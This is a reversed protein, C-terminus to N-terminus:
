KENYIKNLALDLVDSLITKSEADMEDFHRGVLGYYISRIENFEARNRSIVAEQIANFPSYLFTRTEHSDLTEASAMELVGEDEDDQSLGKNPMTNDISDDFKYDDVTIEENVYCLPSNTITRSIDDVKLHKVDYEDDQNSDKIEDKIEKYIENGIEMVSAVFLNILNEDQVTLTNVFSKVQTSFNDAISREYFIAKQDASETFVTKLNNYIKTAALFVPALSHDLGKAFNYLKLPFRSLKSAALNWKKEDIESGFSRKLNKGKSPEPGTLTNDFLSICTPIYFDSKNPLTIDEFTNNMNFIEYNNLDNLELSNLSNNRYLNTPSENFKATVNENFITSNQLFVFNQFISYISKGDETDYLGNFNLTKEVEVLAIDYFEFRTKDDKDAFSERLNENLNILFLFNDSREIIRLIHSSNIFNGIEILVTEAIGSIKASAIVLFPFYFSRILLPILLTFVKM